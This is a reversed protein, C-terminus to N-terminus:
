DIVREAKGNKMVLVANYFYTAFIMYNENAEPVNFTLNLTNSGVRGVNWFKDHFCTSRLRSFDMMLQYNDVPDSDNVLANIVSGHWFSTGNTSEMMALKYMKGPSNYLIKGGFKLMIDDLDVYNFPNPAGTPGSIVDSEKVVGITIGTLDADDFQNLTIGIKRQPNSTALEVVGEDHHIFPYVYKEIPNKDLIGKLSNDSNKFVGQKFVFDINLFESPRNLDSGGYINDSDAIRLTINIQNDLLNTDFPKKGICVGSFPLSLIVLGFQENVTPGFVEEGGLRWLESRKEESDCQSVLTQWMNQGSISTHATNGSGITYKLTDIAAYAWGRCLAQNALLAPLKFLIYVNGSLRDNPIDVNGTSNFGKSSLTKEYNGLTYNTEVDENMTSFSSYYVDSLKIGPSDLIVRKTTLFRSEKVPLIDISM